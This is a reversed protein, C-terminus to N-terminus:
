AAAGNEQALSDAIGAAWAEVAQWDRFDGAPAKVAWVVAKEGFGLRSTDLRGDFVRHDRPQVADIVEPIQVPEAGPKAPGLPGSSFLWVPKRRLVAANAEVFDRAPKLWFSMYVGSGLVVADYGDLGTVNEIPLVAVAHGRAGITRGIAEAMEFTSGHRSAATVLVKM